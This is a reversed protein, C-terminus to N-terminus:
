SQLRIQGNQLLLKRKLAVRQDVAHLLSPKLQNRKVVDLFRFDDLRALVWYSDDNDQSANMRHLRWSGVDNLSQDLKQGDSIMRYRLKKTFVDDELNNRHDVRIADKEAVIADVAEAVVQVSVPVVNREVSVGSQRGRHVHQLFKVRRIAVLEVKDDVQMRVGAQRPREDDSISIFVHLNISNM